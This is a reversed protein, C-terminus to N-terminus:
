GKILLLVDYRHHSSDTNIRLQSIVEFTNKCWDKINVLTYFLPTGDDREFSSRERLHRAAAFVDPTIIQELLRSFEGDTLHVRNLAEFKERFNQELTARDRIDSRYGYKLDGLKEILAQEIAQETM